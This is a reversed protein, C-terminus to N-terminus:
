HKTKHKKNIYDIFKKNGGSIASIEESTFYGYKSLNKAFGIRDNLLIYEKDHEQLTVTKELLSIYREREEERLAKLKKVENELDQIYIDVTEQSVYSGTKRIQPLVDHTVWRKFKKSAATRSKLILCYLGSENIISINQKGGLTDHNVIKKDDDDLNKIAERSNKIDLIECIDKAIFWIQGDIQQTRIQKNEYTFDIAQQM